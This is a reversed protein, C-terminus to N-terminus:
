LVRLQRVVSSVNPLRSILSDGRQLSLTRPSPIRPNPLQPPPPPASPWRPGNSTSPITQLRPLRRLHPIRLESSAMVCRCPLLQHPPVVPNFIPQGFIDTSGNSCGVALDIKTSTASNNASENLLSYAISNTSNNIKETLPNLDESFSIEVSNRLRQYGKAFPDISPPSTGLAAALKEASPPLPPPPHKPPGFTSVPVPGPVEVGANISSSTGKLIQDLWDDAKVVHFQTTPKLTGNWMISDNSVMATSPNAARKVPTGQWGENQFASSSLSSEVPNLPQNFSTTFSYQLSSSTPFTGFQSIVSSEPWLEEGEIIPENCRMSVGNFNQRSTYDNKLSHQRRFLSSNSVPEPAKFSGKRELLSRNGQPRPVVQDEFLSGTASPPQENVIALQPDQLRESITLQRNFSSYAKNNRFNTFGGNVTPSGTTEKGPQEFSTAERKRKKELCIAFACGVAHSLREGSEKVAHFGHCMWRRTTGDRCIYAFGKTNNRDPSCFSVKEITQDVVLGHNDANDVVRLGDGSVYLVGKIVRRRQTRMLKMANECVEMGRSEFVEVSGLYKVEFQCRGARVEDEVVHWAPNKDGKVWEVGVDFRTDVDRESRQRHKSKEAKPSVIRASIASSPGNRSQISSDMKISCRRRKQFPEKAEPLDETKEAKIKKMDETEEQAIKRKKKAKKVAPAGKESDESKGFLEKAVAKAQEEASEFRNVKEPTPATKDRLEQRCKDAMLKRQRERRQAPSILRQVKDHTIWNM